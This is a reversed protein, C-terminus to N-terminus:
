FFPNPLGAGACTAAVRPSSTSKCESKIHQAAVLGSATLLLAIVVCGVAQMQDRRPGPQVAAYAFAVASGVILGGVHGRWDIGSFTFSFVLNIAILGVIPGTELGRRRTIVYFAGFLGFVAGSAGAATEDIPGLAMSLLGGGIGSLFYLTVYRLRGLMQELPTGIVLLAWMNFAIHLFGFHLFMSTVLRYWEGSAVDAPRLAFRDYATSTGNGTLVGAGNVATLIFAVVNVAILVRTADIGGRRLNGGYMTKAPRVTKRGESVCEPCQFGVSAPVM